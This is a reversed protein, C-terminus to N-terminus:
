MLDFFSEKGLHKAYKEILKPLPAPGALPFWGDIFGRFCWRELGFLREESDVLTFRMMPSYRSRAIHENALKNASFCLSGMRDNLMGVLRLAEQEQMDPLYVILSNGDVDVIFHNLKAYARVGDSLMQKELPSIETPRCKRLTVLGTDPSERIEFGEPLTEVPAATLKKGFYYKPKDTKTKGAQLFYTDGFRNRYEITM